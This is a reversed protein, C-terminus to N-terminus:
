RMEVLKAQAADQTPGVIFEQSEQAPVKGNWSPVWGNWKSNDNLLNYGLRYLFEAVEGGDRYYDLAGNMEEFNTSDTLETYAREIFKNVWGALYSDGEDLDATTLRSWKVGHENNIFLRTVHYKVYETWEGPVLIQKLTMWNPNLVESVQPELYGVETGRTELKDLYAIGPDSEEKSNKIKFFDRIQWLEGNFLVDVANDVATKVAKIAKNAVEVGANVTARADRLDEDLDQLLTNDTDEKLLNNVAKDLLSIAGAVVGGTVTIRAQAIGGGVAVANDLTNAAAKAGYYTAAGAINAAGVIANQNFKMSTGLVFAPIQLARAAANAAVEGVRDIASFENRQKAGAFAVTSLSLVMVLALVLAIIKKM